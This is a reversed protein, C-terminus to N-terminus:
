LKKGAAKELHADAVGSCLHIDLGDVKRLDFLPTDAIKPTKVRFFDADVVDDLVFAPRFDEKMARIDVNDIQIGKVHRLYFGHSPIAGFMKPDPYTEEKEPPQLAADKRTGGGRHLVQIGSLKVDEIYHGPVGSIISGYTSASDSCVINSLIVRRLTGVPRGEPGRMRTGLRLFIPSTVIGRMSINTIAIDELIAGDVSELALGQCGELLCNTITINRFGGNSETGCKIRGTRHPGHDEEPIPKYTGDLLTGEQFCGSVYCNSITVFETSRAYGLAYSSKPCIADDWPANVYCNSIRVNRCCDVDIGDRNTDIKLNDVTLNDVGTALIAFHGGHLISFDRFLVNHCNKLAISKDGLHSQQPGHAKTLGKGWILGPGLISINEIGEGWILSNHWHSHGFDQYREWQNAEPPDYGPAGDSAPDAGVIVAGHELYLSVNSKLHISYCLYHGPPFHVTGGGAASAADIAKNVAATDLTKGEGAAGFTRVNFGAGAPAPSAARAQPGADAAVAFGAFGASALKLFDRRINSPDRM